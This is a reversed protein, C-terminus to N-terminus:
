HAWITNQEVRTLMEQVHCHKALNSINDTGRNTSNVNICICHRGPLELVALFLAREANPKLLIM